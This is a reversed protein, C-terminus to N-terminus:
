AVQSAHSYSSKIVNEAPLTNLEESPAVEQLGGVSGNEAVQVNVPFERTIVNIPNTKGAAVM